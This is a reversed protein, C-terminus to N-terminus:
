PHFNPENPENNNMESVERGANRTVLSTKVELFTENLTFIFPKILEEAHLQLIM